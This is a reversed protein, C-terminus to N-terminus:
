RSPLRSRIMAARTAIARHGHSRVYRLLRIGPDDFVDGRSGRVRSCRRGTRDREALQRAIPLQHPIFQSTWAPPHPCRRGPRERTASPLVRERDRGVAGSTSAIRTSLSRSAARARDPHRSPRSPRPSLISSSSGLSRHHALGSPLASGWLITMGRAQAQRSRQLLHGKYRSRRTARRV